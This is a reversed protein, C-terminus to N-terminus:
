LIKKSKLAWGKINPLVITSPRLNVITSKSGHGYWLKVDVFLECLIQRNVLCSTTILTLKSLGIFYVM